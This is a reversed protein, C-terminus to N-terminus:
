ALTKQFSKQIIIPYKCLQYMKQMNSRCNILVKQKIISYSLDIFIRVLPGLAVYSRITSPASVSCRIVSPAGRIMGSCGSSRLDYRLVLFSCPDSPLVVSCFPAGCLVQKKYSKNKIGFNDIFLYIQFSSFYKTINLKRPYEPYM